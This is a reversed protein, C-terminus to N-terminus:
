LMSSAKLLIVFDFMQGAMLFITLSSWVDCNGIYKKKLDNFNKEATQTQTYLSHDTPLHLKQLQCNGAEKIAEVGQNLKEWTCAYSIYKELFRICKGAGHPPWYVAFVIFTMMRQLGVSSM